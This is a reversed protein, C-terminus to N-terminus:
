DLFRRGNIINAATQIISGGRFYTTPPETSFVAPIIDKYPEWEGTMFYFKELDNRKRVRATAAVSAGSTAAM